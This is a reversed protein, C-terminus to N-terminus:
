GDGPRTGIRPVTATATDWLGLLVSPVAAPDAVRLLLHGIGASGIMLSPSDAGGPSGSRLEDLSRGALRLAADHAAALLDPRGLLHGATWLVDILGALGHCLTADSDVRAIRRELTSLTTALAAETSHRYAARREPDLQEARLRTLAIGPAGNCWAVMFAPGGSTDYPRERHDPWNGAAPDFQGDEAAFGDRAARLLTRDGTSRALAMLALAVGAAGHSLGTWPPTDPTRNRGAPGSATVHALLASGFSEARALAPGPRRWGPAEALQLLALVAGARGAMLDDEADGEPDDVLSDLLPEVPGTGPADGLLRRIRVAALLVGPLGTYLGPPAPTSRTPRQAAALAAALAGHATRAFEEEGTGAALEALFLATGATGSYLDPGLTGSRPTFANPGVRGTLTRAIWTCRTRTSEWRADACISRGIRRATALLADPDATRAPPAATRPRGASRSPGPQRGQGPWEYGTRSNAALHPALPDLGRRRFEAAVAATAREPRTPGQPGDEDYLRWLADAVLRCRHRGFSTGPGPDEALGLGHDLRLTLLPPDARLDPALRRHVSRLVPLAEPYRTRPLYLVGADARAYRSPDRLVKLTFPVAASDLGTRLADLLAPAGGDRLHWYLRVLGAAQDAATGPDSGTVTHFGTLLNRRVRPALVLCADGVAPLAPEGPAAADAPRARESAPLARVRAPATWYVVRNSRVQVRGDPGAGVLRWGREWVWDDPVAASLAAAFRGALDADVIGPELRGSPRVYCRWYLASALDEVRDGPATGAPAGQGPPQGPSHGRAQGAAQGPGAPTGRVHAREADPITVALTLATLDPHLAVTTGTTM